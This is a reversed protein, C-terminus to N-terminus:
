KIVKTLIGIIILVNFDIKFSVRGNNSSYLCPIGGGGGGERRLLSEM